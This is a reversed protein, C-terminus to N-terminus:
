STFIPNCFLLVMYNWKSPFLYLRLIDVTTIELNHFLLVNKNEEKHKEANELMEVVLMNDM